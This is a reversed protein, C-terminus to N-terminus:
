YYTACSVNENVVRRIKGNRKLPGRRMSAIDMLCLPVCVVVIAVAQWRERRTTTRRTTTRAALSLVAYLEPPVDEAHPLPM